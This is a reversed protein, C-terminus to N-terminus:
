SSGVPSFGSDIDGVFQDRVIGGDPLDGSLYRTAEPKEALNEGVPFIAQQDGWFFDALTKIVLHLPKISAVLGSFIKTGASDLYSVLHQKFYLFTPTTLESYSLHLAIRAVRRGRRSPEPCTPGPCTLTIETGTSIRIM